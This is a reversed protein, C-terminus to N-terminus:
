EDTQLFALSSGWYERELRWAQVERSEAVEDDLSRTEVHRLGLKTLVRQSAVNDPFAQAEITRLGLQTIGFDIVAAVAETAYGQGWYPKALAYGLEAVGHALDVVGFGCTGLMIQDARRVVGWEYHGGRAYGVMHRAIWERSADLTAHRPWALRDSIEADSAYAFVAQAHELTLAVLSLRPTHLPVFAVVSM